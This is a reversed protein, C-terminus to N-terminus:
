TRLRIDIKEYIKCGPIERVGMKVANDLLRKVPECYERPVKAPDTVECIWVSVEYSSGEETRIIKEKDPVIVPAVAIPAVGKKEADKNLKEQLKRAAEQARREQERRALEIQYRYDSIKQKLGNEIGQLRAQYNKCFGNVGKVFHNPEEVIEKRQKEIRNYLQKSQSAMSVAARVTADDKIEHEQSQEVMQDIAQDYEVFRAKVAELSTPVSVETNGRTKPTNTATNFDM